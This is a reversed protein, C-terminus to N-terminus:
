FVVTFGPSKIKQKKFDLYVAYQKKREVLKRKQGKREKDVVMM